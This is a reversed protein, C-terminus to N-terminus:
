LLITAQNASVELVGSEVTFQGLVAGTDRVTVTGPKLTAVLPEHNQLVTIEGDTTPVTLSEADGSFLNEHVQAITVHM